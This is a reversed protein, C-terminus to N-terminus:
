QKEHKGKLTRKAMINLLLNNLLAAIIAIGVILYGMVFLKGLTTEPTFDGYGVTTLSIVSFYLADIYALGELHHMALTGALLTLLTAFTILKFRNRIIKAEEVSPKLREM